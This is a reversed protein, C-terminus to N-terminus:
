KKTVKKKPAARKKTKKKERQKLMEELEADEADLSSNKLFAHMHIRLEVLERRWIDKVPTAKLEDYQSKLSEIKALSKEVEERTLDLQTIRLLSKMVPTFVANDKDEGDESSPEGDKADEVLGFERMKGAIEAKPRGRTELKGDLVLQIFRQRRDLVRIDEVLSELQHEKRKEYLPLRINYHDRIIDEPTHFKKIAGDAGFLYMNRTSLRSALKMKKLLGKPGRIDAFAADLKAKSVFTITYNCKSTYTESRYDKIFLDINKKDKAAPNDVHHSEIFAKYGMFSQGVPLETIRFTVDDIREYTGVSDFQGPEGEVPVIAGSFSRYWPTMPSLEKGDLISIHQDIIDLPNYKPINTSYGTGIGIAGNVLIMSMIPTYFRPEIEKGEDDEGYQLVSDDETRYIKKTIEQLYTFIYRADSADSGNSLRTGFQGEPYLLNVNNSDVYTQALKVITDMLSKEGHHYSSQSSVDGALSLVKKSKDSGYLRMKRMAWLVKRQSVKLGDIVNPISRTNDYISFHKLERDVFDELYFTPETYDYSLKEDYVSLWEKRWAAFNSDFAHEFQAATEKLTPDRPQFDKIFRAFDAFYERAEKKESTGLGKLYRPKKFGRLGQANKFQDFDSMNFFLKAKLKSNTPQMRVIPTIFTKLFIRGKLLTPYDNEIWNIFLGKIHSGDVDQDTLLMISGYRLSSISETYDKNRQLGIIEKLNNIEENKLLQDKTANRVNLLKGKLPFVGYYDRGILQLGDIAFAKASDGETVILCCKESERGGAKNADELKVMGVIKRKKRGDTTKMASDKRLEAVGMARKSIQLRKEISEIFEDNLNHKFGFKSPELSLSEKTQSTFAPNEVIANVFIWLNERIFGPKIDSSSGKKQKILKGVKRVIQDRIYNVHTGGNSTAIGNVLSFQKFGGDESLAVAIDWKYDKSGDPLENELTAFVRPNEGRNGLFLDIYKTFTRVNLKEGNFYILVNDRTCAAMDLVRRKLLAVFDDDLESGGLRQYDPIFSIRTYGVKKNKTILPDHRISMNNEWIQLYRQSTITDVTDVEFRVSYASCNHTVTFDNILFRQNGDITIGVYDGDDTEKVSIKGTTKSSHTKDDSCKKRPLRTPINGINGTIEIKYCKGEKKQGKYTWTTKRIHVSCFLGLSRALFVIGDIIDKHMMGQSISIRTGNRQVTGDSDVFGALLKLRTDQDNVLYDKPIHKNNVLNYASLAEKLPNPFNHSYRTNGASAIYHNCPGVKKIRGENIQCWQELYEITEPDIGEDCAIGNGRESGDGLWLGLLYPDLTVDRHPWQVCDGRIGALRLQTNKPLKLYDQVSIDITNDNRINKCFTELRNKADIAESTNPSKSPPKRQKIPVELGKHMRTYHRKLHGSLSIGCEECNVNAVSLDISESKTKITKTNHDWWLVSWGNKSANWFIVKHDPMHLTLIHQDNVKYSEGKRGQSIEYMKGYGKTVGLINRITGDDGIVKDDLTLNKAEIMKGNWTPILTDSFVCLKSGLGNRGGVTKKDSDSFNEGTKFRGFILEPLYCQGDEHFEVPIGNGNNEISIQGTERNVDVRIKNCTQDRVTHDRANVLVEDVIKYFAPSYCIKKEKLSNNDLCIWEEKEIRDLGGVYTDPRLLVHELDTKQQYKENIDFGRDDITSSKANKKSKSM